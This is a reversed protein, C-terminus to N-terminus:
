ECHICECSRLIYTLPTAVDWAPQAPSALFSITQRPIATSCSCEPQSRTTAQIKAPEIPIQQPSCLTHHIHGAMKEAKYIKRKSNEIAPLISERDNRLHSSRILVGMITSPSFDVFIKLLKMEICKQYDCFASTIGMGDWGM